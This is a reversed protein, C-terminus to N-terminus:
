NPHTTMKVRSWNIQLPFGVAGISHSAPIAGDGLHISPLVSISKDM